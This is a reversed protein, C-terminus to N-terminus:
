PGCRKDRERRWRRQTWRTIHRITRSSTLWPFHRSMRILFQMRDRRAMWRDRISGNLQVINRIIRYRTPHRNFRISELDIWMLESWPHPNTPSAPLALLNSLKTDSHYIRAAYLKLLMEEVQSEAWTRLSPSLEEHHKKLWARLDFANEKFETFVYSRIPLWRGRIELYGLATPTPIGLDAMAKGAAWARRGRSYRFLAQCRHRLTPLDFRKIIANHGLLQARQLKTKTTSKLMPTIGDREVQAVATALLAPSIRTDSKWYGRYVGINEGLRLHLAHRYLRQPLVRAQTLRQATLEHAIARIHDQDLGESRLLGRLLLEGEAPSLPHGLQGHWDLLCRRLKEISMMRHQNQCLSPSVQWHMTGNSPTFYTLEMPLKQLAVGSHWLAHLTQGMRYATRLRIGEPLKNWRHIMDPWYLESEM